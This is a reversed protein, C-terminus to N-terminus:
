QPADPELRGTAPNVHWGDVPYYCTANRHGHYQVAIVHREVAADIWQNGKGGVLKRLDTQNIGPQAAVVGAVEVVKADVDGAGAVAGSGRSAFVPTWAVNSGPVRNLRAPWPADAGYRNGRWDTLDGRANLHYGMDPWRRWGTNGYPFEPRGGDQGDQRPHAELLLSFGHRDQLRGLVGSVAEFFEESKAPLSALKYLPGGTVLDPSRDAIMQGLYAAWSEAALDFGAPQSEVILRDMIRERAGPVYHDLFAALEALRHRLLAKPNEADLLLTVGGDYPQGTWPHVGAAHCAGVWRIATSKGRGEEGTLLFRCGQPVTGPIIFPIEAAEDDVSALFDRLTLSAPPPPAWGGREAAEIADLERRVERAIKQETFAAAKKQRYWADLDAPLLPARHGNLEAGAPQGDTDVDKAAAHDALSYLTAWDEAYPQPQPDATM